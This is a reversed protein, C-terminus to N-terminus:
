RFVPKFPSNYTSKLQNMVIVPGKSAHICFNLDLM